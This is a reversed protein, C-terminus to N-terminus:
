RPEAAGEADAIVTVLEPCSTCKFIRRHSWGRELDHDASDGHPREEVLDGWSGDHHHHQIRLETEIFRHQDVTTEM